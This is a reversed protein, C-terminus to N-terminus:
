LRCVRVSARVSPCAAKWPRVFVPCASVTGPSPGAGRALARDGPLHCLLCPADAWPTGTRTTGMSLRRRHGPDLLSKGGLRLEELRGAPGPGVMRGRRRAHAERSAPPPGAFAAGPARQLPRGAARSVSQGFHFRQTPLLAPRARPDWDRNSGLGGGRVADESSLARPSRQACHSGTLACDAQASSGREAGPRPRSLAPERLEQSLDGTGGASSSPRKRWFKRIELEISDDRNGSSSDESPSGPSPAARVPISERRLRLRNEPRSLCPRARAGLARNKSFVIKYPTGLSCDETNQM